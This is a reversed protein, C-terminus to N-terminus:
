INDPEPLQPLEEPGDIVNGFEAAIQDKTMPVLSSRSDRHNEAEEEFSYVDKYGLWNKQLFIATAPNLKGSLSAQEIFSAIFSKASECAQQRRESCQIGHCWNYLCQRTIHLSLCLSEIGPRISSRECLSFYQDIREELEEDTKPRGMQHLEKLSTVIHQVASPEIEDLEQQPFKRSM